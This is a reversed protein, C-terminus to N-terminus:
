RCWQVKSNHDTVSLESLSHAFEKYCMLYM